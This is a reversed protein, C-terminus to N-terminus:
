FRFERGADPLVAAVGDDRYADMWLRLMVLNGSDLIPLQMDPCGSRGSISFRVHRDPFHQGLIQPDGRCRQREQSAFCM